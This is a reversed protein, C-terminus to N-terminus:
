PRQAVPPSAYRRYVWVVEDKDAPHSVRGIAQADPVVPQPLSRSQRLAVWPCQALHVVSAQVTYGGLHQLAAVLARNMQPADMCSGPPVLKGMEIVLPRYSRAYDLAPLWLTNLLLWSLAVGASPLVLTKWLAHPHRSSRWRVLALWALTGALALALHVGNFQPVFGPLLRQVNAAPQWPMGTHMSVYVVWIVVACLTASILSFWDIAAATSRQLTPLSFAALICLGPMGLMLVRDSGGMAVFCGLFILASSLPVAIHRHSWHARWRYLTWLAMPWVPWAFWVLAEFMGKIRPLNWVPALRWSWSGMATGVAVALLTAIAAWPWIQRASSLSSRACIL